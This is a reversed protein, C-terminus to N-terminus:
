RAERARRLLRRLPLDGHEVLEGVAKFQAKSLPASRRLAHQESPSLAAEVYRQRDLSGPDSARLVQQADPAIPRMRAM